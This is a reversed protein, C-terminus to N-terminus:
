KKLLSFVRSESDIKSLTLRIISDKLALLSHEINPKLTILDFENLVIEDDNTKFNVSGKLVQVIIEGPAKHKQMLSGNQMTIKIEKSATTELMKVAKVGSFSFANFTIKEM